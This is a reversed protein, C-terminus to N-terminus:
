NIDFLEKSISEFSRVWPKIKTLSLPMNKTAEIAEKKGAFDGYIVSYWDGNNRKNKFYYLDKVQKHRAIFTQASQETTVGILQLTYRQGNNQKVWAHNRRLSSQLQKAEVPKIPEKVPLSEQQEVANAETKSVSPMVTSKIPLTEVKAATVPAVEIQSKKEDSIIKKQEAKNSVSEEVAEKRRISPKADNLSQGQSPDLVILTKETNVDRPPLDVMDAMEHKTPSTTEAPLLFYSIIGLGILGLVVLKITTVNNKKPREAVDEPAQQRQLLVDNIRGPLGGTEIFLIVEDIGAVRNFDLGGGKTYNKAYDITQKQSFPGLDILLCQAELESSLNESSTFPLHVCAFEQALNFLFDFQEKNLQHADEVCIIVKKNAKSWATLRLVVQKETGDLQDFAAACATIPSDSEVLQRAEVFCILWSTDAQAKFQQMFFTKGCQKPGRLLIAQRSNPILHMMLDLRQQRQEPFFFRDVGKDKANM